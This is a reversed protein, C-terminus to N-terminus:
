GFESEPVFVVRDCGAYEPPTSFGPPLPHFKYGKTIKEWRLEGDVKKIQIFYTGHLSVHCGPTWTWSPQDDGVELGTRWDRLTNLVDRVGERSLDNGLRGIADRMLLANTFYSATPSARYETSSSIKRVYDRYVASGYLAEFADVAYMGEAFEGLAEHIVPVGILYGGWGKPPTYGQLQAEVGCNITKGADIEFQIFDVAAESARSIADSCSTQDAAFPALVPVSVGYAKWYEAVREAYERSYTASGVDLYFIAVSKVGLERAGFWTFLYAAARQGAGSPFWWPNSFEEDFQGLHFVPIGHQAVYEGTSPAYVMSLVFVKDVEVLRKTNLLQKAPDAGDDYVVLTVHRGNIGGQDNVYKVGAAFGVAIQEGYVAAPGSTFTSGGVRIETDSVGPPYARGSPEAATAAGTRATGGGSTVRTAGGTPGSAPGAAGVAGSIAEASTPALPSGPTGSGTRSGSPGATVTQDAVAPEPRTAGAAGVGLVLLLACVAALYPRAAYGLGDSRTSSPVM